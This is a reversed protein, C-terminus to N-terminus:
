ATTTFKQILKGETRVAGLEIITQVQTVEVYDTRKDINVSTDAALGYCLARESMAFCSRVGSAVPLIPNAISGSVGGGYLILDMGLAKAISGNEIVYQRTYDGSTLEVEGMLATHEKGAIGMIIREPIENGVENDIFNQKAELLKEYTTGGTANVTLGDDNAFTVTTEFDRGTLVDAFMVDVGVRDFKRELARVCAQAYDSQPNTLM